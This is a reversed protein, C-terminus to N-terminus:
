AKKVSNEGYAAARDAVRQSKLAESKTLGDTNLHPWAKDAGKAFSRAIDTM